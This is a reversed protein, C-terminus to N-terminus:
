PRQCRSGILHRGWTVLVICALAAVASLILLSSPKSFPRSIICLCRISSSCWYTLRQSCVAYGPLKIPQGTFYCYILRCKRDIGVCIMNHIDLVTHVPTHVNLAKYVIVSMKILQHSALLSLMRLKIKKPMSSVVKRKRIKNEGLTSNTHRKHSWM